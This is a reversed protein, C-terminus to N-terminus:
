LDATRVLRISGSLTRAQVELEAPGPGGAFGELRHGVLGATESTSQFGPVDVRIRGARTAAEVHCRVGEPLVMRVPGNVTSVRAQSGERLPLVCVQLGGNVTGAKLQGMTARVEISGNATRCVARDAKVEELHVRGNATAARLVVFSLGEVDISGNATLFTGAYRIDAPMRAEINVTQRTNRLARGADVILADGESVVKVQRRALEEAQARDAAYIEKRIVVRYGSGDGPTVRIAGNATMLRVKPDLGPRFDGEVVEEFTFPEGWCSSAVRRVLHEVQRAIHQGFGDWARFADHREDCSERDRRDALADLLRAAEEPTLKGEELMRLILLREESM